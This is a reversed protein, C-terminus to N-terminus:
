RNCLIEYLHNDTQAPDLRLGREVVEPVKIDEDDRTKQGMTGPEVPWARHTAGIDTPPYTRLHLCGYRRRDQAAARMLFWRRHLASNRTGYQRM